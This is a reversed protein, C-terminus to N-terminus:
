DTCHEGIRMREHLNVFREARARGMGDRLMLRRIREERPATVMVTVDVLPLAGMEVLNAAEIVAVPAGGATRTEELVEAVRRVMAPHVIRELRRRAEDDEVVAAGLAPRDLSGDDTLFEDGFEEIVEALLESGPQLLERSVEDARIVAAGLRELEDAVVSKGSAIPGIIGVVVM